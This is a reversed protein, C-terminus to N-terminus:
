RNRDAAISRHGRLRDRRHAVQPRDILNSPDFGHDRECGQDTDTEDNFSRAM